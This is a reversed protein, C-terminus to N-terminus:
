EGMGIRIGMGWEGNGMGWEGNGMGWEGNGMGDKRREPLPIPFTGRELDYLYATGPGLPLHDGAQVPGDANGAALGGMTSHTYQIKAGPYDITRFSGGSPLDAITGEWVFRPYVRAPV